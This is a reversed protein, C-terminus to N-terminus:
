SGAAATAHTRIVCVNPIRIAALNSALYRLRTICSVTLEHRFCFDIKLTGNIYNIDNILQFTTNNRGQKRLDFLYTNYLRDFLSVGSSQDHKVYTDM